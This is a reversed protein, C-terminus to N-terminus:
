RRREGRQKAINAPLVYLLEIMTHVLRAVEGAEDTSVNGFQDPHAGANGYLRVHTAWDGLAAMPGGDKIMQKIKDKLDPKAKAAATGRDEIMYIIATRFVAVAANPARASLARVGEDYAAAVNSPVEPGLSRAGPTPWWHIGHWTINGGRGGPVGGVRKEEVVV